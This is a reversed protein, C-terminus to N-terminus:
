HMRVARDAHPEPSSPSKERSSAWSSYRENARARQTNDATVPTPADSGHEDADDKARHDRLINAIDIADGEPATSRKYPKAVYMYVLGVAAVVLFGILAIWRDYFALSTDGNPRALLIMSLVGYILAGISVPWGWKGLTWRGGPQWGKARARLSAFVVMQFAFYGALMQFAAVRFLASPLFYLM